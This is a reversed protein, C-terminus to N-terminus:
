LPACTMNEKAKGWTQKKVRKGLIAKVNKKGTKEEKKHSGNDKKISKSVHM